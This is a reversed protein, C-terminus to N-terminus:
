NDRADSFPEVLYVDPRCPPRCDADHQTRIAPCDDDHALQLFFLGSRFHQTLYRLAEDHSHVPLRTAKM